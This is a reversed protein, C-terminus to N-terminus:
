SEKVPVSAQSDLSQEKTPVVNKLPTLCNLLWNPLGAVYSSFGAVMLGMALEPVKLILPTTPSTTINVLVALTLIVGLMTGTPGIIGLGERAKNIIEYGRDRLIESQSAVKDSKSKEDCAMNSRVLFVGHLGYATEYAIILAIPPTLYKFLQMLTTNTILLIAALIVVMITFTLLITSKM